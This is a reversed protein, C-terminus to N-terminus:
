DWGILDLFQELLGQDGPEGAEADGYRGRGAAIAEDLQDLGRVEATIRERAHGAAIAREILTELGPPVPPRDAPRPVAGSGSPVRLNNLDVALDASSAYRMSADKHLCKRVIRELEAPTAERGVIEPYLDALFAAIQGSNEDLVRRLAAVDNFPIRIVHRHDEEIAGHHGPAQMWPATGHYGRQRSIIVTREPHGARVQALRALKM